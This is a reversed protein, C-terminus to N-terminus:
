RHKYFMFGGLFILLVIPMVIGLESLIVGNESLRSLLFLMGWTLLTVVFAVFAVFALNFFRAIVPFFYYMILMLFPAFFPMFVLKYLSIKLSEISINQTKFLELSELIDLISYDSDSAVGEIIKPKFGELTNLEKFESINLGKNGLEYEKPLLTLNGEKLIWNKKEFIGSKAEIFSSLNLDKINFIKINQATSQGNNVKSIYIFENNFKLFVEGSQKLMTGNKLINRKYDNVYAFPTFNLGVYVFCFFLAWLFPFIIVLNKSLGLAYLSVFENARIMSVLSLVLAFILSVPLVYTVASFALFIVYLLSLNAADPLDNFNLLLDIGCYFGLLSLFIIFFNKLYIGSIFRFFIWM